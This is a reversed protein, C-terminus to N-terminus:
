GGSRRKALEKLHEALEPLGIMLSEIDRFSLRFVECDEAAVVSAVRIGDRLLAMEGFIDGAGLTALQVGATGETRTIALKGSRIVYLDKSEEGQRLIYEDKEHRFLGSLPFLMRVNEVTLKDKFFKELKLATRLVGCIDKDLEMQESM